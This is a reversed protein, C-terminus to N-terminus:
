PAPVYYLTLFVNAPLFPRCAGHLDIYSLPTQKRIAPFGFGSEPFFNVGYSRGAPVMLMIDGEYNNGVMLFAFKPPRNVLRWWRPSAIAMVEAGKILIDHDLWPYIFSAGYTKADPVIGGGGPKGAISWDYVLDRGTGRACLLFSQSRMTVQTM